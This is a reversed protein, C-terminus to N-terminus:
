RAARRRLVDEAWVLDDPTTLKRNVAHGPVAAVTGGLREVAMAEDTLTAGDRDAAEYARRLLSAVFAQPTQAAALSGRDITGRILGHEMRKITDAVPLTPIAAGMEVAVEIVSEVIAVDAFPRAADHVLFIGDFSTPAADLGARVSDQRQAGGAVVTVPKAIDALMARVEGVRDAPAVVVIATVSPAAAFVRVSHVLLPVGGLPLFAKPVGGEMREGRGAAVIIALAEM